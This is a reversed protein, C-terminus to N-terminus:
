LPVSCSLQLALAQYPVSLPMIIPISICVRQSCLRSKSALYKRLVTTSSMKTGVTEGLKLGERQGVTNGLVDGDSSGVDIGM